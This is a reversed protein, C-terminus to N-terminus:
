TLVASFNASNSKRETVTLSYVIPKLRESLINDSTMITKGVDTSNLVSTSIILRMPPVISSKDTSIYGAVYLVKRYFQYNYNSYSLSFTIACVSPIKSGTYTITISTNVTNSPILLSSVPDLSYGNSCNHSYFMTFSNSSPSSLWIPITIPLGISKTDVTGLKIYYFTTPAVVSINITPIDNYFIGTTGETKTFSISFNGTLSPAAKVM